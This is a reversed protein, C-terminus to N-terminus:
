QAQNNTQQKFIDSATSPKETSSRTSIQNPVTLTIQKNVGFIVPDFKFDIAYSAEKESRSISSVVNSFANGTKTETKGDATTEPYSFTTFKITDVYKNAMNIEKTAGTIRITSAAFDVEVNSITVDKPTIQSLYGFMRSGIKKSDHLSSLSSLQNQITLLKDLDKTDELKATSEKIDKNINNMHKKQFVQVALFLLVMVTLSAIIVVGSVTIMTQKLRKARIYHLKVDPLLNFQIM